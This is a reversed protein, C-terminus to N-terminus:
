WQQRNIGAHLRDKGALIASSKLEELFVVGWREKRERSNVVCFLQTRTNQCGMPNLRVCQGGLSHKLKVRFCELRGYLLEM